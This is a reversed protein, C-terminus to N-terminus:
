IEGSDLLRLVTSIPVGYDIVEGYIDGDFSSPAYRAFGEFPSTKRPKPKVVKHEQSFLIKARYSEFSMGRADRKMDKVGRNRSETLANTYQKGTGFYAFIHEEWNTMSTNLAKWAPKQSAPIDSKWKAYRERAEKEDSSKWIGFFGEKLQYAANLEPFANLWTEMTLHQWPQLDHERMLLLKRDGKLTKRQAVNLGSKLGKRIVEMAENAMKIVHFKDIVLRAQPLIAKVADRICFSGDALALRDLAEAKPALTVVKNELQLRQEESDLALKLLDVRSLAAIPNRAQEELEQWRDVLRATFEPSLQAVIVYSDRKGIRYETVTQGLHNTVEVIQPLQITGKEALTDITRKVSDHRKETLDSMEKSTMTMDPTPARSVTLANM